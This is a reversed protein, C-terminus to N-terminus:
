PLCNPHGGPAQHPPNTNPAKNHTHQIADFLTLFQDNEAHFRPGPDPVSISNRSYCAHSPSPLHYIMHYHYFINLQVLMIFIACEHPGHSRRTTPTPIEPKQIKPTKLPIKLIKIYASLLLGEFLPIEDSILSYCLLLSDQAKGHSTYRNQYTRLAHTPPM